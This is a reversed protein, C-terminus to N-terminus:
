SLLIQEIYLQTNTHHIHHKNTCLYKSWNQDYKSLKIKIHSLNLSISFFDNNMKMVLLLFISVNAILFSFSARTIDRTQKNLM